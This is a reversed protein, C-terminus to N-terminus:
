RHAIDLSVSHVVFRERYHVELILTIVNKHLVFLMCVIVVKYIFLTLSINMIKGQM